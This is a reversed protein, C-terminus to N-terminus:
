PRIDIFPFLLAFLHHYFPQAAHISSILHNQPLALTKDM